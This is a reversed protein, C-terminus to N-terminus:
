RAPSTIIPKRIKRGNAETSQIAQAGEKVVKELEKKSAISAEETQILSNLNTIAGVHQQLNDKQQKLTAETQAIIGDLQTKQALLKDREQKLQNLEM